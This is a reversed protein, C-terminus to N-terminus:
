PKCVKYPKYGQSIAEDAFQIFHRNEDQEFDLRSIGEVRKIIWLATNITHRLYVMDDKVM